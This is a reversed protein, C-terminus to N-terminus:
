RMGNTTSRATVTIESASVCAVELSVLVGGDPTRLVGVDAAVAV